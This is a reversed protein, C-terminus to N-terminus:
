LRFNKKFYSIEEILEEEEVYELKTQLLFYHFHIFNLKLKSFFNIKLYILLLFYNVIEREREKTKKVYM